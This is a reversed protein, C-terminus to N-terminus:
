RSISGAPRSPFQQVASGSLTAASAALAALVWNLEMLHEATKVMQESRSPTPSLFTSPAWAGKPSQRAEFWGVMRQLWPVYDNRPDALHMAALGWGFKCAQVSALDDFQEVSGTLNLRLFGHGLELAAADGTAQGYAALFVAAIGATFYSQRPKAFDTDVIWALAAPPDTVLGAPSRASLLRHSFEPQDARLAVVWRHVPEYIDARGALVAATGAQATSLLDCFRAFEGGVPDISFGGEATQIEALRGIVRRAVDHRELLQAGIALHGLPYAGVRGIGYAPAALDGDSRLGNRAIWELVAAGAATEGSLAFAWPLRSWSNGTEHGDPTGDSGICGLLWVSARDRAARARAISEALTTSDAM